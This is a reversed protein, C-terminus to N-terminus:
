LMIMNKKKLIVKSEVLNKGFKIYRDRINYLDYERAYFRFITYVCTLCNVENSFDISEFNNDDKNKIISGLTDELQSNKIPMELQIMVQNVLLHYELIKHIEDIEHIYYKEKSNEECNEEQKFKSRILNKLVQRVIISFVEKLYDEETYM